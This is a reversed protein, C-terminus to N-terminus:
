RRRRDLVTLLVATLLLGGQVVNITAPTANMLTLGNQIVGLFLVGLLTGLVNFEGPRFAASGLFVAAFAPLLLPAGMNPSSSAAQASLMIGAAAGCVGVIVFGWFRLRRVDIGSLHAAEANAGLAHMYRGRETLDLLVWVAIFAVAAIVVQRNVGLTQGQGLQIYANALNEFVNQQNTLTYEIGTLVTGLALTVVFSPAGVYAIAVGNVAGAAAGAALAALVALWWPAGHNAMLVTAVAAALGAMAAFSLDFDRMVLVVTLGTAVVALPAASQLLSKINDGTLFTSSRLVGFLAFMVLFVLLVGYRSLWEIAIAGRTREPATAAGAPIAMGDASAKDIETPQTLPSV